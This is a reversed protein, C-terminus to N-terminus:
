ASLREIWQTCSPYRYNYYIGGQVGEGHIDQDPHKFWKIRAIWRNDPDQYMGTVIGFTHDTGMNLVGPLGDVTVLDGAHLNLSIRESVIYGGVM